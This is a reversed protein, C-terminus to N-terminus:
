AACDRANTPKRQNLPYVPAAPPAQAHHGPRPEPSCPRAPRSSARIAGSRSRALVPANANRLWTESLTTSHLRRSKTKGTAVCQDTRKSRTAGRVRSKPTSLVCAATTTGVRRTSPIVCTDLRSHRNERRGIDTRMDEHNWRRVFESWSTRLANANASMQKGRSARCQAFLRV